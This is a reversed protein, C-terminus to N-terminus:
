MNIHWSSGYQNWPQLNNKKCIDIDKRVYEYEHSADIYVFDLSGNEFELCAGESSLRITHIYEEYETINDCYKEFLTKNVVCDDQYPAGVQHESSGEFHDICIFDIKKNYRILYEVMCLASKGKWCGVEVFVSGDPFKQAALEYIKSDDEDFWGEVNKWNTNM